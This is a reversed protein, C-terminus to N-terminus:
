RWSIADLRASNSLFGMEVAKKSKHYSSTVIYGHLKRRPRASQSAPPGVAMILGGWRGAEEEAAEISFSRWLVKSKRVCMWFFAILGEGWGGQFRRVPSPSLHNGSSFLFLFVFLPSVTTISKSNRFFHCVSIIVHQILVQVYSSQLGVM